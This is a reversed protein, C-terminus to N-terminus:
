KWKTPKFFIAIFAVGVVYFPHILSLMLSYFWVYQLQFFNRVSYLFTTDAILKVVVVATLFRWYQTDYISLALLTVILLSVLLVICATAILQWDTYSPAKAAWRQRQQIFEALTAAAKTSVFASESKLFRIEGGWKKVSQLLFIDDGSQEEFRLDSQSRLWAKKTFMLNAGNCLIPMGAGTAAAGSAVLSTFELLQLRSFFDDTNSLRVPCIILDVPRKKYYGSLTELWHFSPLCDGDTTIILTGKASEIGSKLAAKKGHGIANIIKVDSFAGKVSKMIELTKDTSHDDVMILEFDQFSQQALCSLLKPLHLEENRCVVVVTIPYSSKLPGTPVFISIRNWGVIFLFILLLYLSCIFATLFLM